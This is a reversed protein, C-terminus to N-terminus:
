LDNTPNSEFKTPNNEPYKQHIWYFLIAAEAMQFFIAMTPIPTMKKRNKKIKIIRINSYDRLTLFLKRPAGPPPPLEKTPTTPLKKKLFDNKKCM